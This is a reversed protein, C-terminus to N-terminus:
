VRQNEAFVQDVVSEWDKPWKVLTRDLPKECREGCWADIRSVGDGSVGHSAAPIFCFMATAYDYLLHKNIDDAYMAAHILDNCLVSRLFDGPKCGFHVYRVISAKMHEPIRSTM